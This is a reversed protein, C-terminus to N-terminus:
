GARPPTVRLSRERWGAAIGGLAGGAHCAAIPLGVSAFHWSELVVRGSLAEVMCKATVLVFLMAFLWLDRRPSGAVSVGGLMGQVALCVLLGHAIGSLGCLGAAWADPVTLAALLSGAACMAVARLRGALGGGLVAYLGLFTLGDLALHYANVHALPFTLLRWWQGDAVAAPYFVLALPSHGALMPLNLMLILLAWIGLERAPACQVSPQTAPHRAGSAM